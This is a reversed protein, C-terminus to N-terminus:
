DAGNDDIALLHPGEGVLLDFQDRVESGLGHDGDLVRMSSWCERFPLTEILRMTPALGPYPSSRSRMSVKTSRLRQWQPAVSVKLLLNRHASATFALVVQVQPAVSVKLLLNRHASAAFALV